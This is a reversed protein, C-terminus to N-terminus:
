NDKFIDNLVVRDDFPYKVQKIEQYTEHGKGAILIIDGPKSLMVATRIAEKRDSIKLVKKYDTADVGEMMEDMILVPDEDRPNDSTLVVKNSMRAAVRGMLPRKERDRNGGCGIVTILQENGSRISDITSLVNELADPTHAYDVIGTIGSSSRYVEFRGNVRGQKSLHTLIEQRDQGLLFAAAYVALINYANFKGILSFWTEIGDIKLLQGEFDSEMVRCKFDAPHKIAYSYKVAKTNQLMVMGNKDDRNTLAFAEDGLRDFFLKKARIYNDFTIHYDLHDHTINTFVGAAFELGNVRGQVLAHSSVEMFCYTCGAERMEHLLANLRIPDPTTHTSNYVTKGIIYEVTSILGCTYGLSSFLNYLMTCTSTKGNTGTVGLLKMGSSPHGYFASAFYGASQQVDDVQVYTCQPNLNEPLDSCVVAAAGSAVARDIFSHGDSVTGKVAFFVTGPKVQRSDLTLGSVRVEASGHIDAIGKYTM